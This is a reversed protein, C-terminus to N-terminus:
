SLLPPDELAIAKVLTPENAALWTTLLGGSSNGTVYAPEKIVTEIFEALDSGIQNATMPYNKPVVTKGHGPYDVAYVHFNKSLEPLVASYTYWDLMQAHLLLLAPGNNPGEAYNFNVTGVQATKEVVGAEALKKTNPNEYSNLKALGFQATEKVAAAEVSNAEMPNNNMIFILAVVVVM